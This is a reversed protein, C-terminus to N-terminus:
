IWERESARRRKARIRFVLIAAAAIFIVVAIIWSVNSKSKVSINGASKYGEFTREYVNGAADKAVVKVNTDKESEPISFSYTDGDVDYDVKQDDVYIDVEELKINDKIVMEGPSGADVAKSDSCDIILPNTNDVSFEISSGKIENSNTNGSEDESYIFMKYRGDDKFTDANITYKYIKKNESNGTLMVSYDVDKELEYTEDNKSVTIKISDEVLKDKNQECIVLDGTEKLSKGNIGEIASLDYSSGDKNTRKNENTTEKTTEEQSNAESEPEKAKTRTDEASNVDETSLESSQESQLSSRNQSSVTQSRTGSATSYTGASTSTTPKYVYQPVYVYQISGTEKVAATTTEPETNSEPVTTQLESESESEPETATETISESEPESVTDSEQEGLPNSEQESEYESPLTQDISPESEPEPPLAPETEIEGAPEMESTSNQDVIVTETELETEEEVFPADKEVEGIVEAEHGPEMKELDESTIEQESEGESIAVQEVSDVESNMDADIISPEGQSTNEIETTEAFEATEDIDTILESEVTEDAETTVEYEVTEDIEVIEETEVTEETAATVETESMDETEGAVETEAVEVSEPEGVQGTEILVETEGQEPLVYEEQPSVEPEQEAEQPIDTTQAADTIQSMESIQPAVTGYYQESYYNGNIDTFGLEVTLTQLAYTEVTRGLSIINEANTEQVVWNGPNGQIRTGNADTTQVAVYEQGPQGDSTITFNVSRIGINESRVTLDLNILGTEDILIQGSEDFLNLVNIRASKGATIDNYDSAWVSSIISLCMVAALLLPMAARKIRRKNDNTM